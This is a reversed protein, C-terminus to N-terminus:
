AWRERSLNSKLQMGSAAQSIAGQEILLQMGARMIESTTAFHGSVVQQEVFAVLPPNLAVHLTHKAFM